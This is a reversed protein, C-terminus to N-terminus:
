NRTEAKDIASTNVQSQRRTECTAKWLKFGNGSRFILFRRFVQTACTLCSNSSNSVIRWFYLLSLLRSVLSPSSSALANESLSSSPHSSPSLHRHLNWCKRWPRSHPRPRSIPIFVDISEGLALILILVLVFLGVSKESLSSSLPSSSSLQRYHFDLDRWSTARVVNSVNWSKGGLATRLLKTVQTTTLM